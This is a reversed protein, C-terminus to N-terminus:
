DHQLFAVTRGQEDDMIIDIHNEPRFTAVEIVRLYRNWIDAEPIFQSLRNPTNYFFRRCFVVDKDDLYIALPYINSEMLDQFFHTGFSAEPASGIGEGALEILARTNYIDGYGVPVGLDPNVTGWRGPGVCIFTV